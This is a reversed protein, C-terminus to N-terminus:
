ASRQMEAGTRASEGHGGARHLHASRDHEDFLALHASIAQIGIRARWPASQQPGYPENGGIPPRKADMATLRIHAERLHMVMDVADDAGNGRM